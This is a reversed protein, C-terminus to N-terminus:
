FRWSATLWVANADDLGEIDVVEYEARLSVRQAVTVGIGAGYIPDNGSESVSPGGAIDVDLDYWMIGAKAFLEIPGLPLTGVVNPAFGRTDSTVDLLNQNASSEGFDIYDVQFAFFRNFRWGGFVKMASDDSDFDLDAEDVDSIDDLDNSFDGIGAGLYLGEVNAGDDNDRDQALAPGALALTAAALLHTAKM